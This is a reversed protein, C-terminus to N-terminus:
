WPRGESEHRRRLYRPFRPLGSNTEGNYAYTVWSGMPPPHAREEDSFGSGIKFRTGDPREVLLAGMMGVYKGNGPEHGVVKAEADAFSKLKLLDDSRGAVYASSGRHLMLGEGGMAEIERLKAELQVTDAVRHQEVTQLWDIRLNRVTRELKSLREDFSGNERPLDFVMYKITRWAADTPHKARATGSTREFSDRGGWLEGDLAFPPLGSTFWAPAIIPNGTRTLLKSGTWLARVGDLKESVWFQALNAALDERYVNALMLASDDADRTWGVIPLTLCVGLVTRRTSMWTASMM